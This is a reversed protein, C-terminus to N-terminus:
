ACFSINLTNKVKLNKFQFESKFNRNLENKQYAKKTEMIDATDTGEALFM